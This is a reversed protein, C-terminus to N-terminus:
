LGYQNLSLATPYRHYIRLDRLMPLLCSKLDVWQAPDSLPTSGDGNQTAYSVFSIGEIRLHQNKNTADNVFSALRWIGDGGKFNAPAATNATKLITSARGQGRITLGFRSVSAGSLDLNLTRELTWAGHGLEIVGQEAVRPDTWQGDKPLAASLAEMAAAVANSFGTSVVLAPANVIGTGPVASSLIGADAAAFETWNGLVSAPLASLKWWTGIDLRHVDQGVAVNTLALMAAQDAVSLPSAIMSYSNSSVARYWVEPTGVKYLTGVVLSNSGVLAIFESYSLTVGSNGQQNPDSYVVDNSYPEVADEISLQARSQPHRLILRYSLTDEAYFTAIGNSDTRMEGVDSLLTGASDQYIRAPTASDGCTISLIYNAYPTNSSTRFYRSIIGLAM